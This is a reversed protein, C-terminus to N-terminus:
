SRLSDAANRACAPPIPGPDGSSSTDGSWGAQTTDGLRPGACALGLGDAQATSPIATSSPAIAPPSAPTILM